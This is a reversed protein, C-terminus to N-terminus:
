AIEYFGSCIIAYGNAGPYAGAATQIYFTSAAGAILGVVFAGAAVEKGPIIWAVGAAEAFPLSCIM